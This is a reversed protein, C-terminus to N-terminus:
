LHIKWAIKDRVTREFQTEPLQFKSLTKRESRVLNQLTKEPYQISFKM